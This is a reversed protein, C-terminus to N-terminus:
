EIMSTIFRVYENSFLINEINYEFNEKQITSVVESYMEM